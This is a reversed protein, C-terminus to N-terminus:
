QNAKELEKQLFEHVRICNLFQKEAWPTMGGGVLPLFANLSQANSQLAAQLREKSM